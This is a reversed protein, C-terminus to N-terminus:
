RCSRMYRDLARITRLSIPNHRVRRGKGLFQLTGADLNVDDVRLTAVESLRAGTDIFIRVIALDRLGSVSRDGECARLLARLEEETLVPVPQEPVAPPRMREMPSFDIEHDEVAWAFFQRLSAYRNAASAPKLRALQDAFFMELHERTLPEITTPMGSRALFEHLRRVAESYTTITHPAKNEARLTRVFSPLLSLVTPASNTPTGTETAPRDEEAITHAM